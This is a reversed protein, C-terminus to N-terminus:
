NFTWKVFNFYKQCLGTLLAAVNPDISVGSGEFINQLNSSMANMGAFQQFFVLLLSAIIPKIFKHQFLSENNDYNSSSSSSIKMQAPSEPIFWISIYMIIATISNIIAVIWWKCWIGFLYDICIGITNGFQHFTGYLSKCDDPALEITYMPCLSNLVGIAIGHLVRTIFALWSFSKQTIAILLWTIISILGVIFTSKKRGLKPVFLNTLPAGIIAVLPVSTSFWTITRTSWGFENQLQPGATSMFALPHGANISGFMLVMAWGLEKRFFVM